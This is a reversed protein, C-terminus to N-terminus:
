AEPETGADPEGAEPLPAPKAGDRGLVFWRALVEMLQERVREDGTRSETLARFLSAAKELRTEVLSLLKFCPELGAPLKMEGMIGLNALRVVLEAQGRSACDM